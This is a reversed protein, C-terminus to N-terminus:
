PIPAYFKVGAAVGGMAMATNGSLVAYGNDTMPLSAFTKFNQTAYDYGARAIGVNEAIVAKEKKRFQEGLVSELSEFGIGMMSLAAGIALTNQAVKNRSIDALKSVPM